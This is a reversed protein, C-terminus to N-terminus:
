FWVLRGFRSVYVWGAYVLGRDAARVKFSTRWLRMLPVEGFGTKGKARMRAVTRNAGLPAV